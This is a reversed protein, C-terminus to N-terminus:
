TSESRKGSTFRSLLFCLFPLSAAALIWGRFRVSQSVAIKGGSELPANQSLIFPAYKLVAIEFSEDDIKADPIFEGQAQWLAQAPRDSVLALRYFRDMFDPTAADSVPWLAVLVERAGAISFSRRIGLLSEGSVSTGAGSDCASLTVLRTGGLSLKAIESPFLLDDADSDLPDGADRNTGNYLVLGGSSLLGSQDDFDLPLDYLSPDAGLFFAHCGMHIVGPAKGLAAVAQETANKGHFFKSGPPAIRKIAGAERETGQLPQLESLLSLLPDTTTKTKAAPFDSITFVAWPSGSLSTEPAPNLLDRASTITTVQSYTKCLPIDNEDLLAALPLYHVRADPSFAVNSTGAPFVASVPAWFKRHL